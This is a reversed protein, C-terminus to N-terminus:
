ADRRLEDLEAAWYDFRDGLWHVTVGAKEMLARVIRCREISLNKECCYVHKIDFKKIATWMRRRGRSWRGEGGTQDHFCMSEPIDFGDRSAAQRCRELRAVIASMGAGLDDRVYAISWPRAPATAALMETPASVSMSDFM